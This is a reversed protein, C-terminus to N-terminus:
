GNLLLGGNLTNITDGLTFSTVCLATAQAAVSAPLFPNNTYLTGIGTPYYNNCCQDRTHDAGDLWEVYAQLNPTIDYGVRSFFHRVQAMADIDVNFTALQWDGGYVGNGATKIGPMPGLPTNVSTGYNYQFPTGGVGFATGQLPGALILGGPYYGPETTCCPEN